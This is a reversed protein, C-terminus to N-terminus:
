ALVYAYPKLSTDPSPMLVRGGCKIQEAQSM